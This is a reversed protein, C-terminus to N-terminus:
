LDLEMFVFYEWFAQPVESGTYGDIERFGSTLYLQHSEAAFRPSDLRLREYGIQRAEDLLRSLLARGIGRNRAQPRVYMRKIEGINDSLARLCAIGIPHDDVYGLLLCGAPPMFLDLHQMMAENVEPADFTVGFVEGGKASLLELHELFLESVPQSYQEQNAETVKIIM